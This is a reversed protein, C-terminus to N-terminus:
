SWTASSCCYSCCPCCCCRCHRHPSSCNFDDDIIMFTSISRILALRFSWLSVPRRPPPLLPWFGRGEGEVEGEVEGERRKSGDRRFCRFTLPSRRRSQPRTWHSQFHFTSAATRGASARHRQSGVASSSHSSALRCLDSTMLQQIM